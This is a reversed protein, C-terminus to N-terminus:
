QWGRNIRLGEFVPSICWLFSKFPTPLFFFFVVESFLSTASNRVDGGDTGLDEWISQRALIIIWKREHPFLNKAVEGQEPIRLVWWAHMHTYLTLSLSGVSPSLMNKEGRIQKHWEQAGTRTMEPQPSFYIIRWIYKEDSRCSSNNFSSCNANNHRTTSTISIIDLRFPFTEQHWILPHCFLM